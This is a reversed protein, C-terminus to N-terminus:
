PIAFSPLSAEIRRDARRMAPVSAKTPEAQKAWCSGFAAGGGGGGGGAGVPAAGRGPLGRSGLEVVPSELTPFSPTEVSMTFDTGQEVAALSVSPKVVHMPTGSVLWVEVRLRLRYVILQRGLEVHNSDPEFLIDGRV